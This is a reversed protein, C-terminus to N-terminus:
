PQFEQFLATQRVLTGFWRHTIELTFVFAGGGVEAHTVTLDGPSLWRPLPVRRGLVQLFFGASRSVLAADEVHVTLSLGVGRGLYEELGTPGGFRKSSHVIQPFGNRRAYLRTWIQGGTAGDETVTVASPVGTEAWLPLPADIL